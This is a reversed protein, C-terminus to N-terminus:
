CKWRLVPRQAVWDVTSLHRVPRAIATASGASFFAGFYMMWFLFATTPSFSDSLQNALLHFIAGVYMGAVITDSARDTERKHWTSLLFKTGRSIVSVILAIAASLALVGMGRFYDLMMNHSHAYGYVGTGAGAGFLPNALGIELSAKWIAARGQMSPFAWVGNTLINDVRAFFSPSAWSLVWLVAPVALAIAVLGLAVRVLTAGLTGSRSSHYLWMVAGAVFSLALATKTGSMLISGALVLVGAASVMRSRAKRANLLLAIAMPWVGLIMIGLQNPNEFFGLFRYDRMFTLRGSNTSVLLLGVALAVVGSLLPAYALRRTEFPSSRSFLILACFAYTMPLIVRFANLPEPSYLTTIAALLGIAGACLTELWLGRGNVGWLARQFSGPLAPRTMAWLALALPMAFALSFNGILLRGPFWVPLFAALAIVTGWGISARRYRVRFAPKSAQPLPWSLRGVATSM